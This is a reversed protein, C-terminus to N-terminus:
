ESVEALASPILDALAEACPGTQAITTSYRPLDLSDYNVRDCAAPVAGTDRAHAFLRTSVAGVLGPLGFGTIGDEGFTVTASAAYETAGPSYLALMEADTTRLTCRVSDPGARRCTEPELGTALGAGFGAYHRLTPDATPDLRAVAAASDGEGLDRWFAEAEDLRADAPATATAGEQRAATRDGYAGAAWAAAVVALLGASV